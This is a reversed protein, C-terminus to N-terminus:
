RGVAVAAVVVASGASSDETSAIQMAGTASEGAACPIEPIQNPAGSLGSFPPYVFAFPRSFREYIAYRLADRPSGPFDEEGKKEKGQIKMSHSSSSQGRLKSFATKFSFLNGM